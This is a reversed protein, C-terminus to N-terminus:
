NHFFTKVTTKVWSISKDIWHESGQFVTRYPCSFISFHLLLGFSCAHLETDCFAVPFEATGPKIEELLSFPATIGVPLRAQFLDISNLVTLLQACSSYRQTKCIFLTHALEQYKHQRM